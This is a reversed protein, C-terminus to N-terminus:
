VRWCRMSEESVLKATGLRSTTVKADVGRLSYLQGPLLALFVASKSIALVAPDPSGPCQSFDM